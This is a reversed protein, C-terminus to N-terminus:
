GSGWAHLSASRGDVALRAANVAPTDVHLLRKVSANDALLRGFYADDGTATSAGHGYALLVAEGDGHNARQTGTSLLFWFMRFAALLRAALGRLRGRVLV